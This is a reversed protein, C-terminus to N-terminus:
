YCYLRRWVNESLVRSDRCSAETVRQVSARIASEIREEELREGLQDLIAGVKPSYRKRKEGERVISQGM